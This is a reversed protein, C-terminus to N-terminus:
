PHSLRMVTASHTHVHARPHWLPVLRLFPLLHPRAFSTPPSPCRNIIPSAHRLYCSPSQALFLSCSVSPCFSLSLLNPLPSSLLAFSASNRIYVRPNKICVPWFIRLLPPIKLQISGLLFFYNLLYLSYSFRTRYISGNRALYLRLIM